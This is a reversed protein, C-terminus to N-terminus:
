QQGEAYERAARLTQLQDELDEIAIAIREANEPTPHKWAVDLSAAQVRLRMAIDRIDRERDTRPQVPHKSSKSARYHVIM